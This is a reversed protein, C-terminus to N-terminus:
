HSFYKARQDVLNDVNM